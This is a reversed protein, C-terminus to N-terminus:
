RGSAWPDPAGKENELYSERANAASAAPLDVELFEQLLERSKKEDQSIRKAFRSGLMKYLAAVFLPPFKTTNTIRQIYLIFCTSQDSLILDSERVWPVVIEETTVQNIVRLLTTPLQYQYTWRLDPTDKVQASIDARAKAFNWDVSPWAELEDRVQEYFVKALRSDETEEDIDNIRRDGMLSFAQNVIDTPSAM